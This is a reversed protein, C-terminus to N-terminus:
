ARHYFPQNEGRGSAIAGTDLPCDLGDFLCELEMAGRDVDALLDDVVRVDDAVELLAARDEDLALFLHRRSPENDEGGM